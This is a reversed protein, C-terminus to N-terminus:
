RWRDVLGALFAILDIRAYPKVYVNKGFVGDGSGNGQDNSRGDGGGDGDGDGHVALGDGSRICSGRTRGFGKGDTHREFLYM